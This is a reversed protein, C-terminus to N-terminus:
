KSIEEAMNLLVQAIRAAEIPSLYLVNGEDNEDYIGLDIWECDKEERKEIQVLGGSVRLEFM